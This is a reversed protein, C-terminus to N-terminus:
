WYAPGGLRQEARIEARYAVEDEWEAAKEATVVREGNCFTCREDYPGGRRTYDEMFQAREESDGFWEDLDSATFAGLKSHFGEGQCDPCVVFEAM